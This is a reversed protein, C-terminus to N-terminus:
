GDGAEKAFLDVEVADPTAIGDGRNHPLHKLLRIPNSCKSTTRHTGYESHIYVYIFINATQYAEKDTTPAWPRLVIQVM